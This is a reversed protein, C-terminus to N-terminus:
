THGFQQQKFQTFGYQNPSLKTNASFESTYLESSRRPLLMKRSMETSECRFAFHLSFLVSGNLNGIVLGLATALANQLGTTTEIAKGMEVSNTTPVTFPTTTTTTSTISTSPITSTDSIEDITQEDTDEAIATSSSLNSPSVEVKESTAADEDEYTVNYDADTLEDSQGSFIHFFSFSFFFM